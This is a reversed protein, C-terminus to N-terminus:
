ATEENIKLQVADQNRGVVEIEYGAVKSHNAHLVMLVSGFWKAGKREGIIKIAAELDKANEIAERRPMAFRSVENWKFGTLSPVELRGQLM